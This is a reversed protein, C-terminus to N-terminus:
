VAHKIISQSHVLCGRSWWSSNGTSCVKILPYHIARAGVQHESCWSLSMWFDEVTELTSTYVMKIAHKIFSQSHVLCSISYWSCNRTTSVKVLRYLIAWAGVGHEFCWSLSMWFGELTEVTNTYDMIEIAHKIISQSHVLRM